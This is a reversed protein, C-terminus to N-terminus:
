RGEFRPPRKEVFAHVGEQHDHTSAVMSQASREMELVAALDSVLARNAIKKILSYARSPGAALKRAYAMAEEQLNAAPYVRNVMGWEKATVASIPEANFLLEKARYVGLTRPLFFLGGGDSILGVKSFSMVFKADEAAVVQDCALALCVGAGAAFGHVAAVIPIDLEAMALILDNLRGIHDYVAPPSSQGMTKVDGGSCFSRGAGSLLMARITGDEKVTRITDMLGEIMDRSLANLADPRNLTACIVGDYREVLLDQSM